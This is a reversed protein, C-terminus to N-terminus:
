KIPTVSLNGKFREFEFVKIPGAPKTGPGECRSVIKADFETGTHGPYVKLTVKLPQCYLNLGNSDESYFGESDIVLIRICLGRADLWSPTTYHITDGDQDEFCWENILVDPMKLNTAHSSVISILIIIAAIACYLALMVMSPRDNLMAPLKM